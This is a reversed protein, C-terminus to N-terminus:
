KLSKVTSCNRRSSSAAPQISTSIFAASGYVITNASYNNLVKCDRTIFKKIVVPTKKCFNSLHTQRFFSFADTVRYPTPPVVKGRRCGFSADSAKKSATLSRASQCRALAIGSSLCGPSSATMESQVLRGVGSPANSPKIPAWRRSIRSGAATQHGVRAVSIRELTPPM